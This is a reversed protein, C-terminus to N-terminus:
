VNICDIHLDDIFAHYASVKSVILVSSLLSTRVHPRTVSTV